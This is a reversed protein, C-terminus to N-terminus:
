CNVRKARFNYSLSQPAFRDLREASWDARGHLTDGVLTVRAIVADMYIVGRRSTTPTSDAGITNAWILQLTDGAWHRWRASSHSGRPTIAQGIRGLRAFRDPEAVLSFRPSVDRVAGLLQYCGIARAETATLPPLEHRRDASRGLSSCGFAACALAYTAVFPGSRRAVIDSM